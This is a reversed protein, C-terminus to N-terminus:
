SWAGRRFCAAFSANVHGASLGVGVPGGSGVFCGLSAPWDFVVPRGFGVLWGFSVPWGFGGPGGFNVPWGFGTLWGSTMGDNTRGRAVGGTSAGMESAAVESKSVGSLASASPCGSDVPLCEFSVALIDCGPALSIVLAHGPQVDFSVSSCSAAPPAAGLRRRFNYLLLCARASRSANAM